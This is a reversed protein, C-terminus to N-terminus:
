LTEPRHLSAYLETLTVVAASMETPVVQLRSRTVDSTAALREGDVGSAVLARSVHRAVWQWEFAQQPGDNLSQTDYSVVAPIGVLRAVYVALYAAPFAGWAHLVQCPLERQLLCLFTFLRTLLPREQWVVRDICFLRVEHLHYLRCPVVFRCTKPPSDAQDTVLPVDAAYVDVTDPSSVWQVQHGQQALAVAYQGLLMPDHWNSTETGPSSLHYSILGIRV